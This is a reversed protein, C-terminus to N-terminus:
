ENNDDLNVKILVNSPGANINLSRSIDALKTEDMVLANELADDYQKSSVTLRIYEGKKSKYHYQTFISGPYPEDLFEFGADKILGDIEAVTADVPAGRLYTKSSSQTRAKDWDYVRKDGFVDDTRLRYSEPLALSTYIDEIRDKRQESQATAIWRATSASLIALSAGALVIVAVLVAIRRRRSIIIKKSQKKNLNRKKM